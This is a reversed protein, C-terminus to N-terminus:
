LRSFCEGLGHPHTQSKVGNPFTPISYTLLLIHFLVFALTTLSAIALIHAVSTEVTQLHVEEDLNVAM